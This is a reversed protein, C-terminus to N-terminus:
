RGRWPRCVTRQDAVFRTFDDETVCAGMRAHWAAWEAFACDYAKGPVVTDPVHNLFATWDAGTPLKRPDYNQM